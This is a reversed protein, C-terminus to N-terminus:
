STVRRDTPGWKLSCYNGMQANTALVSARYLALSIGINRCSFGCRKVEQAPIVHWAVLSSKTGFNCYKRLELYM